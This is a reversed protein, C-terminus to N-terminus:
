NKLWVFEFIYTCPSIFSAPISLLFKEKLTLCPIGLAVSSCNRQSWFLFDNLIEVTKPVNKRFFRMIWTWFGHIYFWWHDKQHSKVPKSPNQHTKIPKSPNQHNKIPNSPNQHTRYLYTWCYFTKAPPGNRFQVLSLTKRLSRSDFIDNQFPSRQSLRLLTRVRIYKKGSSFYFSGIGSKFPFFVSKLM